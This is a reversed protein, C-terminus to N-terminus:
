YSGEMTIEQINLHTPQNCIFYIARAVDEVQIPKTGSTLSQATAQKSGELIFGTSELLGPSVQGVKINFAQLEMRMAKTLTDVGQRFARQVWKGTFIEKGALTCVNVIQGQRKEMMLPTIIRGFDAMIKLSADVEKLLNMEESQLHNNSKGLGINNILIDIDKWESDLQNLIDTTNQTQNLESAFVFIGTKFSNELENKLDELPPAQEGNLIVRYGNEAFLRATSKGIESLANAIFVTKAEESLFDEPDPLTTETEGPVTSIEGESLSSLQGIVSLLFVRDNNETKLEPNIMFAAEYHAKAKEADGLKHYILALDYNAFPHDPAKSLVEEFAQIAPIAHGLYENQLVGQHYRAQINNPNRSYAMELYELAAEPNKEPQNLQLMGLKFAVNPFYPNRQYVNRFCAMALAIDRSAEALEGKLFMASLNNPDHDLLIDLQDSATLFDNQYHGLFAAYQYRLSKSEPVRVLIEELMQLGEEINGTQVIANTARLIEFEDIEKEEEEEDLYYGEMEEEPHDSPGEGIPPSIDDSEIEPLNEERLSHNSSFDPKDGSSDDVPHTTRFNDGMLDELSIVEEEKESFSNEISSNPSPLKEALELALLETETLSRHSSAGIETSGEGKEESEINEEETDQFQESNLLAAEDKFISSPDLWRNEKKLIDEPSDVPESEFTEQIENQHTKELLDSTGLNNDEVAERDSTSIEEGAGIDSSAIESNLETTSVAELSVEDIESHSEEPNIPTHGLEAFRAHSDEDSFIRFFAEYNNAKFAQETYYNTERLNRLFEGVEASISRVVKLKENFTVLDEELVSRKQKRLELYREQWYNMYRIVDSVKEFHTPINKLDGNEEVYYGNAIIPIVQEKKMLFQLYALGNDMCIISKLFNDSIILLTPYDGTTIREAFDSPFNSERAEIKNFQISLPKLDRIIGEVLHENDLLYAINLTVTNSM